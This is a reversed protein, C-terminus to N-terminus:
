VRERCSARGLKPLVDGTLSNFKRLHLAGDGTLSLTAKTGELTAEGLTLRHNKAAHDLHRNGDFLSQAGSSHDMLILGADEGKIAPNLRRLDAYVSSVDGLLYRFTDIWHVATEHVLLRPMTQFYPQRDLYARPGQGDGTRLRFNMNQITGLTGEGIVRHM